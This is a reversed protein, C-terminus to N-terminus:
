KQLVPYGAAEWARWGGELNWVNTYGAGVLVEAAIASMRGSRCYLVIKAGKDAPYASLQQSTEDFSIFADTSALEGEYPIHTNVFFFDKSTLMENLQVADLNFYAGGEVSVPTGVVAPSSCAALGASVLLLISLLNRFRM